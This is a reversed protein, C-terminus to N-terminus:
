VRRDGTRYVANRDHIGIQRATRRMHCNVCRVECKAIEAQIARWSLGYTILQPVNARKDRLHDFELVVPDSEGCDVCAHEALYRWARVRSETATADRRVRARQIQEERNAVSWNHQYTV